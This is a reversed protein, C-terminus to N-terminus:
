RYCFTGGPTLTFILHSLAPIGPQLHKFYTGDDDDDYCGGGSSGGGWSGLFDAAIRPSSGISM